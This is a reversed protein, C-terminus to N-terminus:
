RLGFRVGFSFRFENEGQERFFARRYDGQGFVSVVDGVPVSIGAGPQLMFAWDNDDIPAGNVLLSARPHVAGALLQVFPQVHRMPAVLRPGAGFHFFSLDGSVGPEDQEDMALGLEGVLRWRDNMARSVDVNFGFPYTEDPIHLLQYGISADVGPSTTTQASAPAAMGIIAAFIWVGALQASRKVHVEAREHHV